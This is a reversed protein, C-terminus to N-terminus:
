IRQFIDVWQYKVHEWDFQEADTRAKEAIRESLAPQQLLIEVASYMADLDDDSVLLGNEHDNILFPIGGVNTSVIPLGLAMAEILSVPLNDFRTTNIFVDHEEALSIWEQKDLKGTFSIRNAVKLDEALKKCQALSGDKDPGVMTLKASPYKKSLRAILQIALQPNYIDHFARVWLLHPNTTERKKFAYQKLNIHNPVLDVQFNRTQLHQRLYPSVAVNTLSNSFVQRCKRPSRRFRQPMNGGHLIPVYPLKVASAVMAALWAYNFAKTSYTDILMCDYRRYRFVALLMTLLRLVPNVQDSAFKLNHGEAAM